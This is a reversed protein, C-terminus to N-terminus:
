VDKIAEKAGFNGLNWAMNEFRNLRGDETILTATKCGHKGLQTSVSMKYQHANYEGGKGLYEIKIPIKTTNKTIELMGNGMCPVDMRGCIEGIQKERKAGELVFVNLKFNCGVGREIWFWGNVPVLLFDDNVGDKANLALKSTGYLSFDHKKAEGLIKIGEIEPCNVAVLLRGSVM